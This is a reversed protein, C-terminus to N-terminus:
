FYGSFLSLVISPHSVPYSVTFQVHHSLPKYSLFPGACHHWGWLMSMELINTLQLGPIYLMIYIHLFEELLNSIQSQFANSGNLHVHSSKSSTLYHQV